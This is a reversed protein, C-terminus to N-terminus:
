TKGRPVNKVIKWMYNVQSDGDGSRPYMHGVTTGLKTTIGTPDKPDPRPVPGWYLGRSANGQDISNTKPDWAAGYINIFSGYKMYDELRSELQSQIVYNKDDLQGQTVYNKATLQNSTVYKNLSSLIIIM